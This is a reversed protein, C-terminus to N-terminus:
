SSEEANLIRDLKEDIEKLTMEVRSLSRDMARHMLRSIYRRCVQGLIEFLLRPSVQYGYERVARLRVHLTM